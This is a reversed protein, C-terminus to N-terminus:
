TLLTVPALQPVPPLPSAAAARRLGAQQGKRIRGTLLGERAPELGAHGDRLVPRSGYCQAVPLVEAEIGRNLVSCPPQEARFRELGRRGAVRRAEAMGSAPM